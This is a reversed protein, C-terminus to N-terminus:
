YVQAIVACLACCLVHMFSSAICFLSVFGHEIRLFRGYNQSMLLNSVLKINSM